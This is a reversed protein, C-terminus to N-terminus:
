EKPSKWDTVRVLPFLKNRTRPTVCADHGCSGCKLSLKGWRNRLLRMPGVGCGPCREGVNHKYEDGAACRLCLNYTGDRQQCRRSDILGSCGWCHTLKVGQDHGTGAQVCDFITVSYRAYWRAYDKRAVMIEDCSRCRMHKRITNLRNIWGGLKSLLEGEERLEPFLLRERDAFGSLHLLEPLGWRHPPLTLDSRLRAPGGPAVDCGQSLPSCWAVGDRWPRGECHTVRAGGDCTPLLPRWDLAVSSSFAERRVEAELADLHARIAARNGRALELSRQVMPHWQVPPLPQGALQYMALKYQVQWPLLAILTPQVTFLRLLHPVLMDEHQVLLEVIATTDERRASAELQDQPNLFPYFAPDHLLSHSSAGPGAIDVAGPESELRELLFTHELSTLPRLRGVEFIRHALPASLERGQRLPGGRRTLHRLLERRREGLPRTELHAILMRALTMDCAWAEQPTVYDDNDDHLQPGPRASVRNRYM